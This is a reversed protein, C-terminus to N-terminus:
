CIEMINQPRRSLSAFIMSETELQLPSELPTCLFVPLVTSRYYKETQFKKVQSLHEPM